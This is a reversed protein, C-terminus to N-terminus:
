LEEKEICYKRYHLECRITLGEAINIGGEGEGGCSALIAKIVFSKAEFGM